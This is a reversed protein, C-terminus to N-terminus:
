RDRDHAAVLALIEDAVGWVAPSDYPRDPFV